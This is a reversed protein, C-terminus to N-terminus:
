VEGRCNAPSCAIQLVPPQLALDQVRIGQLRSVCRAHLLFPQWDPAGRAAADHWTPSAGSLRTRRPGPGARTPKAGLRWAKLADAHNESCLRRTSGHRISVWYAQRGRPSTHVYSVHALSRRKLSATRIITLAKGPSYVVYM